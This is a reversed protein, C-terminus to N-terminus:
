SFDPFVTNFASCKVSSHDPFLAQIKAPLDQNLFPVAKPLDPKNEQKNAM